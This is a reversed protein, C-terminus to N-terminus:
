RRGLQGPRRSPAATPAPRRVCPPTSAAASTPQRPCGSAPPSRRWRFTPKRWCSVPGPSASPSCGSAPLRVSSTPSGAPSRGRHSTSGPPWTTSPSRSPSTSADGLRARRGPVRDAAPGRDRYQVQGGERHPPMVMRRAVQAAYAAGHDNRVLQLCLDIGTGSGASTAIDGHDIYLVDPDVQVAPFRRQLEDAYRWHTTARRGDLLGTAALAFAGSCISVLRAGRRHARSLARVVPPPRSGSSRCGARSSSRTPAISRGCGPGSWWTSVRPPGSRARGNPACASATRARRPVGGGCVGARFEGATGTVLAVVRHPQM